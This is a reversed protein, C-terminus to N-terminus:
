YPEPAFNASEYLANAFSTSVEKTQEPGDYLDGLNELRVLIKNRALPMSVMKVNGNIGAKDLQEGLKFNSTLSNTQDMNFSYFYQSPDDTKHQMLRQTSPRLKTDTIQVYYSAQVRIGNGYQDVEELWEGM